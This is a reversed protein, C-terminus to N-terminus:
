TTSANSSRLFLILIFVHEKIHRSAPESVRLMPKAVEDDDAEWRYAAEAVGLQVGQLKMHYGDNAHATMGLRM